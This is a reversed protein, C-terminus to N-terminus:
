AMILNLFLLSKNMRWRTVQVNQHIGTLFIHGGGTNVLPITLTDNIHLSDTKFDISANLAKLSAKSILLPVDLAIIDMLISLSETQKVGQANVGTVWGSAIVAGMSM